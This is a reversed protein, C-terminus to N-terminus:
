GEAGTEDLVARGVADVQATTVGVVTAAEMRRLGEAVILGAARMKVLQESTKIEITM